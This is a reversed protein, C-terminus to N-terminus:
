LTTQVCLALSPSLAPPVQRGSLTLEPELQPEELRVIVEGIWWAITASLNVALGLCCFHNNGVHYSWGSSERSKEWVGVHIGSALRENWKEKIMMTLKVERWNYLKGIDFLKEFGASEPESSSLYILLTVGWSPERNTFLQSLSREICPPLVVGNADAQGTRQVLSDSLSPRSCWAGM